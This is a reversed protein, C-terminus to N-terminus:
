TMSEREGDSNIKLFEATKKYDTINHCGRYSCASQLGETIERLIYKVHGKFPVMSMKGEVFRNEGKNQASASGGYMKYYTRNVLDTSDDPYVNGPTEITGALISGIMVTDAGGAIATTIDRTTRCGGDAILPIDPFSKHIDQIAYLQPVGIGTNRRTICMAGPGIGVKVINAGWFFLDKAAQSTAVNGAIITIDKRMPKSRMYNIMEKMKTHHGHAIDVCFVEAGALILNDFRERENDTVGVSVGIYAATIKRNIKEFAEINDEISWFRHMIGFGGGDFMAYTMEPGTVTKMNASIIPLQLKINGFQTTLDVDSRSPVDSLVPAMLVSGYSGATM